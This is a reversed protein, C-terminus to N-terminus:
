QLVHTHTHKHMLYTFIHCYVVECETEKNKEEEKKLLVVYNTENDHQYLEWIMQWGLETKWRKITITFPHEDTFHMLYCASYVTYFFM